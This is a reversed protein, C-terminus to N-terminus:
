YVVFQYIVGNVTASCLVIVVLILNRLSVLALQAVTFGMSALPSVPMSASVRRVLIPSPTVRQFSKFYAPAPLNMTSPVVMLVSIPALMALWSGSVQILVTLALNLQAPM